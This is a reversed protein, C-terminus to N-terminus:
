CENDDKGGRIHLMLMIIMSIFFCLLPHDDGCHDHRWGPMWARSHILGAVTVKMM